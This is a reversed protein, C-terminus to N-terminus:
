KPQKSQNDPLPQRPRLIVYGLVVALALGVAIGGYDLLLDLYEYSRGPVFLQILEDTTAVSTSVLAPFYVQGLRWGYSRFALTMVFGLLVFEGIHALNRIIQDPIEIFGEDGRNITGGSVVNNVADEVVDGVSESTSSSTTADQLSNSFIFVITLVCSLVLLYRIWKNWKM